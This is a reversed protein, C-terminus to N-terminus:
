YLFVPQYASADEAMLAQSFAGAQYVISRRYSMPVKPNLYKNETRMKKEYQRLFIARGERTLYVGPEDIRQFHEPLIVHHHIMSMVMSDAIVARWEEMLDSALAPHNRKLAHLMGFYPHLGRNVVATYVENSILTYAFSIMANFSDIPPRRNRGSFAFEEPVLCSLGEFYLRAVNGEYGMLSERDTAYSVKKQLLSMQHIKEEVSSLKVRRNYRRLLIIQNHIKAAIWKKGMELSFTSGQLLIQKQQKFVDAHRTSELRGHFKGSRSIWSVPIGNKLLSVMAESSVQVSDILVLCELVEEPIEFVVELNRGVLYRGGKKQIRANEETVYVFSLLMGGM